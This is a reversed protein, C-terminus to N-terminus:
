ETTATNPPKTVLYTAVVDHSTLRSKFSLRNLLETTRTNMYPLSDRARVLFTYFRSSAQSFRQRLLIIRIVYLSLIVFSVILCLVCCTGINLLILCICNFHSSCTNRSFSSLGDLLTCWHFGFSFLDLPRGFLLHISQVSSSRHRASTVFRPFGDPLRRIVSFSM